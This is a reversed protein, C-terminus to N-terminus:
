VEAFSIHPLAEQPSLQTVQAAAESEARFLESERVSV